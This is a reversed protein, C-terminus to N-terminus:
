YPPNGCGKGAGTPSFYMGFFRGAPVGSILVYKGTKFLYEPMEVTKRRSKKYPPCIILILRDVVDRNPSVSGTDPTNRGWADSRELLDHIFSATIKPYPLLRIDLPNFHHGSTPQVYDPPVQRVSWLVLGSDPMRRERHFPKTRSILRLFYTRHIRRPM